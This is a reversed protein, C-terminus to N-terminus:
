DPIDAPLLPREPLRYSMSITKGDRHVSLRMRSGVQLGKMAREVQDATQLEFDNIRTVIDGGILFEEGGISIDLIGGQLGAQEAPSQPEVVEVLLGPVLSLRLLSSLNQSVFKGHFGVWPRIIRGKDRLQPLAKAALNIPIAFGINQAGPVISTNIGVVEGCQNLLPGGSNGPNIAADTQILRRSLSLPTEPLVRNLGSVVGTTLTQDLGLPNGIAMVREGVVLRDSNGLRLVPLKPKRSGKIEILALDFIPDAGVLRAPYTEGNDLTVKILQAGFVVHANTLIQGKKDLIFGSGVSREVRKTLRFPDIRTVAIFVVAPSEKAYIRWVPKNCAASTPAQAAAGDVWLASLAAAYAAVRACRCVRSVIGNM